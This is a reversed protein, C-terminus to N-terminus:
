TAGRHLRVSESCIMFSKFNFERIQLDVPSKSILFLFLAGFESAVIDFLSDIETRRDREVHWDHRRGEDFGDLKDCNFGGTFSVVNMERMMCVLDLVGTVGM